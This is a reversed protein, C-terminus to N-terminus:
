STAKAELFYEAYYYLIPSAFLVSDVRDLLGGHGPILSGSDKKGAGRKIVSESLDGLQGLLGLILAIAMSSGLGLDSMVWFKGIVAGLLNGGFSAASGELTKNPSVRPALKRVGFAKGFIYAFADGLWIVLFLFVIYERGRQLGRMLILYSLMWSIYFLGFFTAAMGQIAAKLEDKLFLRYILIALFASTILLQSLRSQDLFFSLSLLVSATLGLWKFCNVGAAEIMRYFELLGILSAVSVVAFFSLSSGYAVWIYFPPILIVASLVKKM